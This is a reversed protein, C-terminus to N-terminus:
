QFIFTFWFHFLCNLNEGHTSHGSFTTHGWTWENREQSQENRHDLQSLLSYFCCDRDRRFDQRYLVSARPISHRPLMLWYHNNIFYGLSYIKLFQFELWVFIQTKQFKFQTDNLFLCCPKYEMKGKISGHASIPQEFHDLAMKINSAVSLNLINIFHYCLWWENTWTWWLLNWFTYVVAGNLIIIGSSTESNQSVPMAPKYFLETSRM